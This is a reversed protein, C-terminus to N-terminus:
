GRPARRWCPPVPARGRRGGATEDGNKAVLYPGQENGALDKPWACCPVYDATAILDWSINNCQRGDRRPLLGGGRLPQPGRRSHKGVVLGNEALMSALEELALARRLGKQRAGQGKVPRGPGPRALRAAQPARHAGSLLEPEGHAQDPAQGSLEAGTAEVKLKYPRAPGSWCSSGCPPRTRSTYRKRTTWWGTCPPSPSTSIARGQGPGGDPPLLLNAAPHPHPQRGRRRRDHDGGQPLAGAWTSTRRQQGRRRRRHGGRHGPRHDHHPDRRKGADQAPPGEGRQPDQGQAAPHGPLPPRPGAQRQGRRQRGGGPIDRQGRPRARLLRGAQRAPLKRQLGGQAAGPRPGQPGGRPGPGGRHDQGRDEQGHAPDGGPYSPLQENVIQEVLGKVESNGLKM